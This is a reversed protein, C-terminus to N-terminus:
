KIRPRNKSFFISNKKKYIKKWFNMIEFIWFFLNELFIWFILIAARAPKIQLHLLLVKICKLIFRPVLDSDIMKPYTRNGFLMWSVSKNKKILFYIFGYTIFSARVLMGKPIGFPAIHTWLNSSECFEAIWM